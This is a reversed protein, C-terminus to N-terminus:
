KYSSFSSLISPMHFWKRVKQIVVTTHKVVSCLVLLSSMVFPALISMTMFIIGYFEIDWLLMAVAVSISVCVNMFIMVYPEFNRVLLHYGVSWGALWGVLSAIFSFQINHLCIERRINNSVDTSLSRVPLKSKGSNYHGGRSIILRLDVYPRTKRPQLRVPQTQLLLV